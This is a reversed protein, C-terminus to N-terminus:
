LAKSSYRRLDKKVDQMFRRRDQNLSKWLNERRKVDQMFCTGRDQCNLNINTQNSFEM